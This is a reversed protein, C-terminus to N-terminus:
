EFTAQKEDIGHPDEHILVEADPYSREIREMVQDAVDHAQRLTLGGDLELHLQIFTQSGASRTRLDHMNIVKPHSVVLERIKQRDAEPLERDMLMNLSNGFIEWAGWLIYVAIGLAFLPDAMPLGFESALLLAIIVSINTLLDTRYHLADAGIAVSGTRRIVSGQFLVLALTLVISLVMVGIGVLSNNIAVPVFFRHGAEFLLLLASGAVFASQVLGAIAEAKGHGFRHERDAPQAAQRIAFLNVLSAALDLLSDILSSLLSVADTAVYAGAKAIILISAVTVSAIAALRKLRDMSTGSRAERSDAIRTSATTTM